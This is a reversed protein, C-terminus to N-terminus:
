YLDGGEEEALESERRDVDFCSNEYAQESRAVCTDCIGESASMPSTFVKDYGCMECKKIIFGQNM